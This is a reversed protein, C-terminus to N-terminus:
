GSWDFDHEKKFTDFNYHLGHGHHVLHQHQAGLGALGKGPGEANARHSAM